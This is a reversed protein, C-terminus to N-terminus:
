MKMKKLITNDDNIEFPSDFEFLVDTKDPNM